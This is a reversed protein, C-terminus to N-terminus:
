KKEEMGPMYSLIIEEVDDIVEDPKKWTNMRLIQIDDLVKKWAELSAIAFNIAESMEESTM